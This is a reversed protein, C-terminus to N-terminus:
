DVTRPLIRLTSLDLMLLVGDKDDSLEEDFLETVFASGTETAPFALGNLDVNIFFSFRLVCKLFHYM